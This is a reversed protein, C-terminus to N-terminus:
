PIIEKTVITSIEGLIGIIAM